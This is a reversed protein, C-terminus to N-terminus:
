EGGLFTRLMPQMVDVVVVVVVVMSHVQRENGVSVCKHM